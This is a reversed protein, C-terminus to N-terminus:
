WTPGSEVSHSNLLVHHALYSPSEQKTIQKWQQRATLVAECQWSQVSRTHPLTFRRAKIKQSGPENVEWGLFPNFLMLLLFTGDSTQFADRELHPSTRSINGDEDRRRLTRASSPQLSHQSHNTPISHVGISQPATPQYATINEHRKTLQKEIARALMEVSLLNPFFPSMKARPELRDRLPHRPLLLALGAQCDPASTEYKMWVCCASLLVLFYLEAM